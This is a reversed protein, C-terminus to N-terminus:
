ALCMAVLWFNMESFSLHAVVQTTAAVSAQNRLPQAAAICEFHVTLLVFMVVSSCLLLLRRSAQVCHLSLMKMINM